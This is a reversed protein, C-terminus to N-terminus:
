ARTFLRTQRQTLPIVDGRTESEINCRSVFPRARRGTLVVSVSALLVRLDVMFFAMVARRLSFSLLRTAAAPNNVAPM